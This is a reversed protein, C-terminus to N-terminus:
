VMLGCDAAGNVEPFERFRRSENTARPGRPATRLRIHNFFFKFALM